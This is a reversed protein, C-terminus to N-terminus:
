EGPAAPRMVSGMDPTAATHERRPARALPMRAGNMIPAEALKNIATAM